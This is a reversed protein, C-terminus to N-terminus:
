KAESTHVGFFRSLAMQPGCEWLTGLCQIRCLSQEVFGHASTKTESGHWWTRETITRAIVPVLFSCACAVEKTIERSALDSGAGHSASKPNRWSSAAYASLLRMPNVHNQLLTPTCRGCQFGSDFVTLRVTEYLPQRTYWYFEIYISIHLIYINIDYNQQQM